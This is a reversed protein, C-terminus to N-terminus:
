GVAPRSRVYAISDDALTTYDVGDHAFRGLRSADHQYFAGNGTAYTAWSGAVSQLQGDDFVDEIFQAQAEANFNAWPPTEKWWEYSRDTGLLAQAGLADASYRSGTHQYQWVHTCEHVLNSNWEKADTDKMYITDDLTFPRDTFAYIGSGARGGIIRIINTKLSGQFVLALVALEDRTLPRERHQLGFANQIIGVVGGLLVLAGGVLNAVFGIISRKAFGWDAALLGGVAGLLDVGANIGAAVGKVAAAGADCVTEAVSGTWSVVAGLAGGIIPVDEELTQAADDAASAVAQGASQVADAVEQAADNVATEVTNVVDDLWSM